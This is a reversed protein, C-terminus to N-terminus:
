VQLGPVRQYDTDTTVVTLRRELATSAILTDIDGILGPGYPARMQRRIEAYRELIGYTLFYPSVARLFERLSARYGEDDSRGRLYEILEGYVLISTAAERAQIWPTLLEVAAPWQFLGAWPDLHRPSLAECILPLPQRARTASAISSSWHTMPM